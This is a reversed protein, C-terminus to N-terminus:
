CFFTGGSQNFNHTTSTVNLVTTGNGFNGNTISFDGTLDVTGGSVTGGSMLLTGLVTMTGSITKTGSSPSITVNNFSSSGPTIISNSSGDFVIIDNNHNFTGGSFTFNGAVNFTGPTVPANFTGGIISVSVLDIVGTNGNFTGNQQTFLNSVTFDNSAVNITGENIVNGSTVDAGPTYTVGTEVHLTRSSGVTLDDSANMTFITNIDSDGAGAVPALMM